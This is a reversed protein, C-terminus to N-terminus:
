EKEIGEKQQIAGLIVTYHENTIEGLRNEIGHDRIQTTLKKMTQTGSLLIPQAGPILVALM